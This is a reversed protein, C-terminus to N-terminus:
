EDLQGPYQGKRPLGVLRYNGYVEAGSSSEVVQKRDQIRQMSMATKLKVQELHENRKELSRALKAETKYLDDAPDSM